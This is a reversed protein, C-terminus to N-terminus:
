TSVEPVEADSLVEPVPETFETPLSEDTSLKEDAVVAETVETPLSNAETNSLIYLYNDISSEITNANTDIMRVTFGRTVDTVIGSSLSWAGLMHAICPFFISNLNYIQLGEIFDTLDYVVADKDVIEMSLIPLAHPSSELLSSLSTDHQWEVFANKDPLYYWEPVASSSASINVSTTLFPPSINEFLYYNKEVFASQIGTYLKKFLKKCSGYFNDLRNYMEILVLVRLM